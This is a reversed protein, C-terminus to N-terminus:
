IIFFYSGIARVSVVVPLAVMSTSGGPGMIVCVYVLLGRPIALNADQRM